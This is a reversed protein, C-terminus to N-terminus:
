PGYTVSPVVFADTGFPVCTSATVIADATSNSLARAPMDTFFPRPRLVALTEALFAAGFFFDAYFLEWLSGHLPM